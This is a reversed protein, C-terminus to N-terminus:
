RNCCCRTSRCAAIRPSIRKVVVSSSVSLASTARWHKSKNSKPPANGPPIENLGDLMLVARQQDRLTTFHRGLPGLQTIIFAPLPMD